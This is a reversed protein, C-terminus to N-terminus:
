RSEGDDREPEVDSIRHWGFGCLEVQGSVLDVCRVTYTTGRMTVSDGAVLRQMFRARECYDLFHSEASLACGPTWFGGTLTGFLGDVLYAVHLLWRLLYWEFTHM